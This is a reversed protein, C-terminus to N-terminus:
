KIKIYLYFDTDNDFNIYQWSDGDFFYLVAFEWLNGDDYAECQLENYKGNALLDYERMTAKVVPIQKIPNGNNDVLEVVLDAFQAKEWREFSFNVLTEM